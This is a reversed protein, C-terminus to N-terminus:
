PKEQLYYEIFSFLNIANKEDNQPIKYAILFLSM